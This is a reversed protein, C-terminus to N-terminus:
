VALKPASARRGVAPEDAVLQNLRELREATADDVPTMLMMRSGRSQDLWLSTMNLRLLGVRPNDFEKLTLDSRSVEQTAWLRAFLESERMLREVLSTWTPDDLHEAIHARLRAVMSTAVSEHNHYSAAWVPDTFNLIMCNRDSVPKAELDSILFRYVRNYALLDFKASQICAPYPSFKELMLLEQRRITLCKGDPIVPSLGALALLHSHEDPDLLLTRAISNLVQASANIPRGQELWTYWTVGVGALQAVEERRLGPTRRRDGGPLGVDLPVVRGRRDKLFSALEQRSATSM